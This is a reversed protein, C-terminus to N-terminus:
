QYIGSQRVPIKYPKFLSEIYEQAEDNLRPDTIIEEIFTSDEVPLFLGKNNALREIKDSEEPLEDIALKIEKEHSLAKCKSFYPLLQEPYDKAEQGDYLVPAIFCHIDDSAIAACLKSVTTKIVVSDMDRSYIRWLPDTDFDTTWNSVFVDKEGGANRNNKPALRANYFFLTKDKLLTNIWRLPIFRYIVQDLNLGNSASILNKNKIVTAM